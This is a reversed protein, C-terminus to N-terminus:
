LVCHGSDCASYGLQKCDLKENGKDDCYELSSGDCQMFNQDLTCSASGTMSECVFQVGLPNPGASVCHQGSAACDSRRERGSDDCQVLVDGDCHQSGPGPVCAPGNGVCQAVANIVVCTSDFPTCDQAVILGGLDKDDWSTVARCSALANGMCATTFTKPDCTGLGCHSEEGMDSCHLGEAACDERVVRAGVFSDCTTVTDGDCAFSPTDCAVAAGDADSVRLDRLLSFRAAARDHFADRVGDLAPLRRRDDPRDRRRAAGQRVGGGSTVFAVLALAYGLM